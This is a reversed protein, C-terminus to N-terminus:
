LVHALPLTQADGRGLSSLGMAQERYQTLQELTLIDIAFLLEAAFSVALLLRVHTTARRVKFRKTAAVITQSETLTLGTM